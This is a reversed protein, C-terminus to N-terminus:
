DLKQLQGRDGWPMRLGVSHTKYLNRQYSLACVSTSQPNFTISVRASSLQNYVGKVAAGTIQSLGVFYNWEALIPENCAVSDTHGFYGRPNVRCQSVGVPIQEPSAIINIQSPNSVPCPYIAGGEVQTLSTLFQFVQSSSLYVGKGASSSAWSLKTFRVKWPMSVTALIQNFPSSSPSVSLM